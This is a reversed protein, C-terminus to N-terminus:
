EPFLEHRMLFKSVLEEAEWEGAVWKIDPNRRFWTVQKKYLAMDGAEFDAVADELTKTKLVYDKFARYGIVNFAENDWGFKEGIVRVEHIFGEDLMKRIRDHIRKQVVEKSLFTGLVLVNDLIHKNRMPKEGATEIARILRRRNALDIHEYAAADEAALLERLNQDSLAELQARQAPNAVSPFKYDFLVADLYLGSGGVLIPVHSRAAIDSIAAEALQKFYAASMREGPDLIDILHHPIEDQERKSPKATGIDMGRYLTRSDACIIEAGFVQALYMALASKGTATPGVIAVLKVNQDIMACGYIM